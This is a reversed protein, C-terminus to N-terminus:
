PKGVRHEGLVRDMIETSAGRWYEMQLGTKAEFAKKLADATFTEMSTYVIVKGGEKKAAAVTQASQGFAVQGSLIFLWGFLLPSIKRM